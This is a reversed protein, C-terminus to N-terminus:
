EFDFISLKPQFQALSRQGALFYRFMETIVFMAKITIHRITIAIKVTIPQLTYLITLNLSLIIKLMIKNRIRDVNHLDYVM